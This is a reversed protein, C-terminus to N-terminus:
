NPDPSFVDRLYEIMTAFDMAAAFERADYIVRPCIRGALDVFLDDARHLTDADMDNQCVLFALIEAATQADDRSICLEALATLASYLKRRHEVTPADPFESLLTQLSLAPM